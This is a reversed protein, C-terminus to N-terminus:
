GSLRRSRGLPYTAMGGGDGAIGQSTVFEALDAAEFGFKRKGVHVILGTCSRFEPDYFKKGGRDRRNEGIVGYEGGGCRRQDGKGGKRQNEVAALGHDGVGQAPGAFGPRRGRNVDNGVEDHHDRGAPNEGEGQVM